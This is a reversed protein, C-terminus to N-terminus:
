HGHQREIHDSGDEMGEVQHYSPGSLLRSLKGVQGLLHPTTPRSGLQLNRHEGLVRVNPSAEMADVVDPETPNAAGTKVQIFVQEGSESIASIDWIPQTPDAAIEVNQFGRQELFEKADIEAMKGNLGNIFGQTSGEGRAEMEVWHEHLTHEEAQNPYALEYAQQAKDDVEGGSFASYLAESSDSMSEAVFLASDTEALESVIEQASHHELYASGPLEQLDGIQESSQMSM